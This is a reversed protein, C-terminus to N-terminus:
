VRKISFALAKDIDNIEDIVMLLRDLGLAVGSTNPMGADLAAILNKDIPLQPLGKVSRNVNDTELRRRQEVPDTLELYGNAIEMGRCYLEFRKAIANGDADNEVVSLAAQSKPYDFIFCYEPLEPEILTTMVLDLYESFNLDCSNIDIRSNALEALEELSCVHPNVGLKGKFIELYSLRTIKNVGITAEILDAVEDMLKEMTFGPRYWELISFEPNHLPTPSDGRFAKCIQFIPGVDNALLRKMAFEPSTQLFYTKSEILNSLKTTLSTLHVDTATASSLLPTEIELIDRDAFFKRVTSLIKARQRLTALSAGPQWNVM